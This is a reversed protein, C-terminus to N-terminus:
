DESANICHLGGMGALTVYVSIPDNSAPGVVTKNEAHTRPMKTFRKLFETFEMCEMGHKISTAPTTVVQSIRLMQIFMRFFGNRGNWTVTWIGLSLPPTGMCLWGLIIRICLLGDLTIDM